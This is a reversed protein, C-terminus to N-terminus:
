RSAHSREKKGLRPELATSVKLGLHVIAMALAV